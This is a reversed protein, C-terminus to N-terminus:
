RVAASRSVGRLREPDQTNDQASPPEGEGERSAFGAILVAVLVVAPSVTAATCEAAPPALGGTTNIRQIYTTDV